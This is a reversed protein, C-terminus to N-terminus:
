DKPLPTPKQVWFDRGGVGILLGGGTAHRVFVPALGLDGLLIEEKAKRLAGAYSVGQLLRVGM